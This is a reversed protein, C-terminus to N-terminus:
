RIPLHSLKFQSCYMLYTQKNRKLGNFFTRPGNSSFSVNMSLSKVNNSFKMCFIPKVWIFSKTFVLHDVVDDFWCNSSRMTFILQIIPLSAESAADEEPELVSSSDLRWLSGTRVAPITLTLGLRGSMGYKSTTAINSGKDRWEWFAEVMSLTNVCIVFM